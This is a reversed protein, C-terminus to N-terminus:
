FLILVIGACFLIVLSCVKTMATSTVPGSTPAVVSSPANSSSPSGTPTTEPASGPSIPGIPFTNEGKSCRAMLANCDTLYTQNTLLLTVASTVDCGDWAFHPEPLNFYWNMAYVSSYHGEVVFKVDTWALGHIFCTTVVGGSNPRTVVGNQLSTQVAGGLSVVWAPVQDITDVELVLGLYGALTNDIVSQLVFLRNPIYGYTVQPFTCISENAPHAAVCDQNLRSAYVTTQNRILDELPLAKGAFASHYPIFWGANLLVSITVGPLRQLFSFHELQYCPANVSQCTVCRM